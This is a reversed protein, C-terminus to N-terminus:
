FTIEEQANEWEQVLEANGDKKKHSKMDLFKSYILAHIHVNWLGDQGKKMDIAGIGGLVREKWYKRRRLQKFSSYLKDVGEIVDEVNKITLTLFRLGTDYISRAVRKSKVLGAFKKYFKETRIKGCIPCIIYSCRKRVRIFKCNCMFTSYSKGCSKIKQAQKIFKEDKGLQESIGILDLLLAGESSQPFDKDCPERRFAESGQESFINKVM